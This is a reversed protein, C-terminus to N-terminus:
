RLPQLLRDPATRRRLRSAAPSQPRHPPTQSRAGPVNREGLSGHLGRLRLGPRGRRRRLGDVDLPPPALGGPGGSRARGSCERPAHGGPGAGRVSRRPPPQGGGGRVGSAPQAGADSHRLPSPARVAWHRVPSVPAGGGLDVSPPSPLRDSTVPCWYPRPASAPGTRWSPRWQTRWSPGRDAAPCAGPLSAAQARAHALLRGRLQEVDDAFRADDLLRYEFLAAHLQTRNWSRVVDETLEPLAPVGGGLSTSPGGSPAM